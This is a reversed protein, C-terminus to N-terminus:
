YRVFGQVKEGDGFWGAIQGSDNIGTFYTGEGDDAAGTQKIPDSVGGDRNAVFGYAYEDSGLFYGVADGDKNIGTLHVHIVGDTVGAALNTTDIDTAVGGNLRFGRAHGASNIYYGVAVGSDNIGTLFTGCYGFTLACAAPDAAYHAFSVDVSGDTKIFGRAYGNAETYYGTLRRTGSVPKNIGTYATPYLTSGDSYNPLDAYVAATGTGTRLFYHTERSSNRYYGLIEDSDTIGIAETYGDSLHHTFIEPSGGDGIFFARIADDYFRTGAIHGANNIGLYFDGSSEAEYVVVKVTKSKTQDASAKATITYEDGARADAPVRFVAAAGGNEELYSDASAPVVSWVVATTTANQVVATLNVSEGALLRVDGQPTLDIKVTSGGGGRSDGCATLMLLLAAAAIVFFKGQYKM